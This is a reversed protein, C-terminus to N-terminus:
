ERTLNVANCAHDHSDTHGLNLNTISLQTSATLYLLLLPEIIQWRVIADLISLKDM